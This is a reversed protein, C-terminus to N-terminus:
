PVQRRGGRREPRANPDLTHLLGLTSETHQDWGVAIDDLVAVLPPFNFWGSSYDAIILEPNYTQPEAKVHKFPDRSTCNTDSVPLLQMVTLSRFLMSIIAALTKVHKQDRTLSLTRSGYLQLSRSSCSGAEVCSSQGGCVLSLGDYPSSSTMLKNM